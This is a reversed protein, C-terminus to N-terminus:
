KMLMSIQFSRSFINYRSSFCPPPLYLIQFCSLQFTFDWFLSYLFYCPWLELLLSLFRRMSISVSSPPCWHLHPFFVDGHFVFHFQHLNLNISLCIVSFNFSYSLLNLSFLLSLLRFRDYVGSFVFSPNNMVTRYLLLQLAIIPEAALLMKM